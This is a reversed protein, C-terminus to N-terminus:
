SKRLMKGFKGKSLELLISIVKLFSGMTIITKKM